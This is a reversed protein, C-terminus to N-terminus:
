CVHEHLLKGYSNTRGSRFAVGTYSSGDSLGAPGSHATSVAAFALRVQWFLRFRWFVLKVLWIVVALCLLWSM